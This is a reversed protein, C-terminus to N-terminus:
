VVSFLFSFFSFFFSPFPFPFLFFSYRLQGECLSDLADDSLLRLARVRDSLSVKKWGIEFVKAVEKKEQRRALDGASLYGNLKDGSEDNEEESGSGMEDVDEGIESDGDAISSGDLSDEGFCNKETGIVPRLKQAPESESSERLYSQLVGEWNGRNVKSQVNLCRLLSVFTEDIIAISETHTLSQLFDDFSFPFLSLPKAFHTLFRWLVLFDSFSEKASSFTLFSFFSFFSFSLFFLFFLFFYFLLFFLLFLFVQPIPYEFPSADPLSTSPPGQLHLLALDDMPLMHNLKSLYEKRMEHRKREEEKEKEATKKKRRKKPKEEESQKSQRKTKRSPTAHEELMRTLKPDVAEELGHKRLLDDPVIWPSGKFKKPRRAVQRIKFRVNNWTLSFDTRIMENSAAVETFTDKKKDVWRITYFKDEDTSKEHLGIVKATKRKWRVMDGPVFFTQLKKHVKCTIPDLLEQSGHVMTMLLRLHEWPFDALLSSIDNEAELAEKYTLSSKGTIRCSWVRMDYLESRAFYAEFSSFVENTM